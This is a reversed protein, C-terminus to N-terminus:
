FRNKRKQMCHRCLHLLHSIWIWWGTLSAGVLPVGEAFIQLSGTQSHELTFRRIALKKLKLVFVLSTASFLNPFPFFVSKTSWKITQNFPWLIKRIIQIEIWRLCIKQVLLIIINLNFQSHTRTGFIICIWRHTWLFSLWILSFGWQWGLSKRDAGNQVFNLSGVGLWSRFFSRSLLKVSEIM